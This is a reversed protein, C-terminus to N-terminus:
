PSDTVVTQFHFIPIRFVEGDFHICSVNNVQLSLHFKRSADNDDASCEPLCVIYHHFPIPNAVRFFHFGCSNNGGGPALSVAGGGPVRSVAGGGPVRSVAGGGPVRSVAGGGPALSVAGGGPALSVAGGGPALSVAGGGPALSVAGGGPVRSV